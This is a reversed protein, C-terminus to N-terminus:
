KVPIKLFLKYRDNEIKFDLIYNSSFLLNLRRKKDNFRLREIDIFNNIYNIEELLGVKSSKVECLIYQMMDSLKIVLNM